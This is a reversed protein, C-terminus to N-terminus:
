LYFSISDAYKGNKNKLYKEYGIKALVKEIKKSQVADGSILAKYYKSLVKELTLVSRNPLDDILGLAKKASEYQKDKYFRQACVLLTQAIIRLSLNDKNISSAYSLRQVIQDLDEIPSLHALLLQVILVKENALDNTQVFNNMQELCDKSVKFDKNELIAAMLKIIERHGDITTESYKKLKSVDQDIFAIIVEDEFQEQIIPKFFDYLSVHNYNLIEILKAMSINSRNSEVRSYFSETVIDACFEKQTLGLLIRIKKLQTGIEM